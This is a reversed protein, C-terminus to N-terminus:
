LKSSMPWQQQLQKKRRNSEAAAVAAAEEEATVRASEAAAAAEQDEDAKIRSKEAAAAASTTSEARNNKGASNENSNLEKVIDAASAAPQASDTPRDTLIDDFMAAFSDDTSPKNPSNKSGIDSNGGEDNKKLGKRYLSLLQKATAAALKDKKVLYKVADEPDPLQSLLRDVTAENMMKNHLVIKKFVPQETTPM